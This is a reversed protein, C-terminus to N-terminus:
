PVHCWAGGLPQLEQLWTQDTMKQVSHGITLSNGDWKQFWDQEHGDKAVKGETGISVQSLTPSPCPYCRPCINGRESLCYVSRNSVRAEPFYSCLRAIWNNKLVCHWDRFGKRLHSTHMQTGGNAWMAAEWCRRARQAAKHLQCAVEWSRWDQVLGWTGRERCVTHRQPHPM